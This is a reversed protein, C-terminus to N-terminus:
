YPRAYFLFLNKNNDVIIIDNSDTAGDGTCDTVNYGFAFINNDNDIDTLDSGDVTGDQNADGGYFAYVGSGMNQMPANFGDDYAQSLATSFNYTTVGSAMAVTNLSWTEISNRHKVAIYYSGAVATPFNVSASGDNHLITRESYDPTPNSLSGASWLNVEITDTETPDTSYGLDYLTSWMTGGGLYFGELFATLDLDLGSACPDIDVVVSATAVCGYSNTVTITFTNVSYGYDAAYVDIAPDTSLFIDDWGITAGAGAGSTDATLTVLTTGNVGDWCLTEPGAPTIAPTPPSPNSVVTYTGTQTCGNGDEATVTYTTTSAPSVTIAQTTEGGPSWLYNTYGADATLTVNGVGGCIPTTSSPSVNIAVDPYITVEITESVSCAGSDVTATYTTSATPSVTIMQTTGIVSTGDSWSYTDYGAGADLNVTGSGCFTTPGSPTIVLNIPQYTVTVPDSVQTCGGSTTATVSYTTTATPIATFSVGTAGGPNWTYDVQAGVQIQWDYFYYYSTSSSAPCCRGSTISMVGPVDFPFSGVIAASGDRALSAISGTRALMNLSYGTGAVPVDFNIPVYTKIGPAATGTGSFTYTAIINTAPDRLIIDVTGAGTGIPYIYVGNITFPTVADFLLGAELTYSGGGGENPAGVTYTVLSTDPNSVTLVVSDGALCIVASSPTIVPKVTTDNVTITVPGDVAGCLDNAGGSSDAAYVYYSTTSDPVFVYPNGTYIITSGDTSWYYTYGTNSSSATLTVSTGQCVTTASATFGVPPSANVTVTVPVRGGTNVCAGITAEVWYTTTASLFPEYPNGTFLAGGGSAGLYWGFDGNGTATLTVVGAGCRSTGTAAVTPAAVVVEKVMSTDTGGCSAYLRYYTTSTLTGTTYTFGNAGSIDTWTDILGTPSSQWQISAGTAIGTAELEAIGSHCITDPTSTIVAVGPSSAVTVLVTDSASCGFSSTLTAIYETSVFVAGSNVQATSGSFGAPISSWTVNGSPALNVNVGPNLTGYSSMPGSSSTVAWSTNTNNDDSILVSGNQGSNSPINGSWDSATVGSAAPFTMGNVAVADIILGNKRIIYGGATGSGINFNVTGFRYANNAPDDTPNSSNATLILSGGSPILTAGGPITVEHAPATGGAVWHEFTVGSPDVPGTGLNTVEWIDETTGSPVTIYSPTFGSYGSTIWGQVMLETWRLSPIFSPSNATLTVSSGSCVSLDPGVDVTPIPAVVLTVSSPIANCAGDQSNVTYIYTGEATPTIVVPSGTASGSIGSASTDPSATWTFNYVNGNSGSQILDLTASTGLCITDPTVSAAISDYPTVEAIVMVRESYCLGDTESVYFTDTEYIPYNVLSTGSQGPIVTTTTSDEYWYFTGTGGSVSATPTGYGCQTSNTATPTAPLPNVTVTVTTDDSCAGITATVTYTTTSTPNVTVNNGSLNGPNWVWSLSSTLNTTNVLGGLYLNPRITSSNSFTGAAPNSCHDPTNDIYRKVTASFGPNSYRVTSSSAGADNNEFCYEVILNSTGNWYFPTIPHANVGLVPTVTDITAVQTMGSEFTSATLATTATNKMFIRVNPMAPTTGVSSVDFGVSTINGPLLGAATLESALYLMQTKSSGYLRYYPYTSTTTTATGIQATGAGIGFSEANLDVSAGACITTPSASVNTVEPYENVEIIQNVILACEAGADVASVTYTYTGAATPTATVNAGSTGSLGATGSPVASWTYVYNSTSGTQVADLTIPTTVPLCVSTDSAAIEVLDPLNVTVTVATRPGECYGNYESVYFTTTASIIEATLVSDTEGAIATGGTPVTYWKFTNSPDGSRTVSIAPVGSGCQTLSVPNTPALPEPHVFVTHYAENYCMPPNPDAATVTYTTTVAPTVVVSNGSLSGPNWSWNVTGAGNVVAQGGFIFQPRVSYTLLNTATNSCQVAASTAASTHTKRTSVYATNDMRVTRSMTASSSSNGHCMEIVINSTGDWNFPTSFTMTNIGTVPMLSANSYVTTFSPTLFAASLDTATTHAMSLSFDIMPLTGASTVDLALSTINGAYLGAASLESAPIIYQIHLNSWLSYFGASYTSSTTAGAGVTVNGASVIPTLATLTVNTGPCISDVDATVSSIIPPALVFITDFAEAVCTGDSATVKWILQGPNNPAATTTNQGSATGGAPISTWEYSTYTTVSGQTAALTVTGFPCITDNPVTATATIAEAITINEVVMVRPGECPGTAYVEAVYFTDQQNRPYAILISDNQGAIPSGGLADFYWNFTSGAVSREVYCTPTQNGCHGGDFAIPAPPTPNVIVNVTASNSCSTAPDTATVTYNTTSAPNVTVENGSVAGPNWTWNYTGSAFGNVTGNLYLNPRITSSNSYTGASPNACYNADNDVYRKVTAAFGPNTYRVSSSSNGGDNNAFCYEVLLNSTGNWYFPSVAHMNVGLVPTVTDITAVLTLGTEFTSATMASISTNALSISVNPMEPTTGVSSVDFGISTINGQVMGAATLESALYLMQTKSSGYLRYYPYTSTTSTGTGIQAQGATTDPTLATLVVPSGACVTDPEAAVSTITPVNNVTVYVSDQIVCMNPGDVATVIYNYTGPVTPTVTVPSGVISGSIGSGGSPQATWTYDYTNTSGTQIVSLDFSQGPCVAAFTSQADIPDPDVVTATVMVRDGPCGNTGVEAVYFITTANISTLYTTDLGSQLLTGFTPADYWNYTAGVTGQVSAEPVANGCQTSNQASPAAPVPLVEVLVPSSSVSCGNADTVNATYSLTSTPIITLSPGSGVSSTGDSWDVSAFSSIQNSTFTMVPRVSYSGTRSTAGCITAADVNDARYYNTATYSTADYKVSASTGGGNNNSWCTQMVVNSVGDWNFPAIFNFTLVGPASITVLASTYVTTLGTEFTTGLATAATTGIKLDFDAYSGGASGMEIGLATIDGAYVGAANLEAPTILFENKHGGYLHYFPSQYSTSTSVGSGSVFDGGIFASLVTSDGQCIPGVPSASASVVTGTLYEDQYTTGPVTTSLPVDNYATVTWSVVANAPTAAPITFSYTSGSTPAYLELTDVAIGDFSYIVLVSDIVGIGTTVDATVTHSGATCQSGPTLTLNTVDPTSSIGDFEDAGIDPATGTGAYGISGQRIDGDFDDDVGAIATGGSEIVNATANDIHLFTPSTGVISLISSSVNQSRSGVEAPSVRAKFAALTQDSNTGDYYLLRSGSPTGSYWLNNSSAPDYSSLSTSTRRLGIASAAATAGGPIAFNLVLNNNLKFVPTTSSVYIGIAGFATGSGGGALRITNNYLKVSTGGSIHVGSLADNATMVPTSSTLDISILNNTITVNTGSTNYIGKITSTGSNQGAYLDFIKNKSINVEGGLLSYIGVVNASEGISSYLSDIVNNTVNRFLGSSTTNHYMGRVNIASSTSTGKVYLRRIINNSVTEETPSGANYLGYVTAGSSGSMSEVGNNEITNNTFIYKSTGIYASYLTSTASGGGMYNDKVTNGSSLLTDPASNYMLYMTGTTSMSNGSVMSGTRVENDPGSSYLGYFTGTGNKANGSVTNGIMELNASTGTVYMTYMTGTGNKANNSATNGNFQLQSSVASTPYMGYWSGTGAVINGDLLNNSFSSPDSPSATCYMGYFLASTAGTMSIGSVENNDFSFSLPSSGTVAEIGRFQGTTATNRTINSVTNGVVSLVSNAWTTVSIGTHTGTTVATMTANGVENNDVNVTTGAQPSAGGYTELAIGDFVATTATTVNGSMVNGSVNFKPSYDLSGSSISNFGTVIMRMAHGNDGNMQNGTFTNNSISVSDGVAQAIIGFMTGTANTSSSTNNLFQNGTINLNYATLTDGSSRGAFMLWLDSSGTYTSNQIINNTINVFNNVSNSTPRGLRSGASSRIAICQTTSAASTNITVTNGTVTSNADRADGLRIGNILGTGGNAGTNVTNDAVSLNNQYEAFIGYVAASGGGINTIINGSGGIENNQDYFAFPSADNFGGIVIGNYVNSITNTFFKNDSHTGSAATVTVTAYSADLNPAYIGVTTNLNAKNLTITCNQITDHQAGDTGSCKLLVYGAEAQMASDTNNANEQLDIGDFTLYDVGVIKVIADTIGTGTGATIIPNAGVGAKRFTLTQSANPANAGLACMDLTLNATDSQGAAVEFVVNGGVGFSNLDSFAAAFSLYNNCTAAQTNDITYTGVLPGAGSLIHAASTVSCGNSNTVVVTYSGATTAEYTDQDLGVNTSGDLVWQYSSITGSGATVSATLTEPIGTCISTNGSISATPSAYTTISVPDSTYSCGNSNTVTVTYSGVASAAETDSTGLSTSGDLVWQYGTITGSGATANSSLVTNGEPCFELSGSIAATPSVHFSLTMNSVAALCSGAGDPDDTTLTLVVSGAASDASSPTYSTATAFDTNPSFSGSGSSSWTGSTAAGGISGALTHSGEPCITAAVGADATAPTACAGANFTASITHNAMVNTFTYSTPTGVSVADVLVDDIFRAADPTITFTQNTGCDVSVAGLPSITGDPGTSSTITYQLISIAVPASTATCGLDSTVTVTYSGVASADYTNQDLGVPSGDSWAYSAITGTTNATLTTSGGTCITNTGTINVTPTPNVTVVASGSIDGADVTCLADSASVITYTTTTAPSVSITHPSSAIGSETFNSTGDNYTVSWPADGTLTFILDTSQGDCITATGSIDATPIDVIVSATASITCGGAGTATATYTTTVSPSAIVDLGTYVDLGSAAPTWAIPYQVNESTYYEFTATAPFTADPGSTNDNYSESYYIDVTGGAPDFLAAFTATDGSNSNGIAWDMPNPSSTSTAGQFCPSSGSIGSGSFALRIESGYSGGNLSVGTITLHAGVMTGSFAPVTFSGILNNGPCIYGSTGSSGNDEDTSPNSLSVSISNYNVQTVNAGSATLAQSGGACITSTMPSISVSPPPPNVTVVKTAVAACGANPGASNDLADVTYTTTVSPSVTVSATTGASHSWTYDYNPDNTSSATLITSEGFCITSTGAISVAPASTVSATVATRASVCVGTGSFTMKPRLSSTSTATTAACLSAASENDARYYAHSVFTTADRKVSSSTGGGNVNSWCVEILLNSTGDWNVPSSFPYVNFGVTPSVSASSYVSTLGTELTSTMVSSTTLKASIGFDSLSVGASVVEFAVSTIDGAIFGAASLESALILYQSKKGGYLHYYPSEYSSSTAAGIGVTLESGPVPNSAAVYFDTNSSIVPTAFPSGTGLLNGGLSADYWTMDSGASATAELSVSGTGCRSGATTGTITPTFVEVTASTTTVGGCADSVTVTYSSTSTIVGTVISTTTEGGPSWSYTYPATGDTATVSVSAAGTNCLSAPTASATAALASATITYNDITGGIPFASGTLAVSSPAAAFTGSSNGVNPTAVLDQAVIFYEIIDGATIGGFILVPDIVLSFPTSGSATEAYKWGDTTNDNTGGLANANTSKRFYVRPNTGGSTNVGSVDNIDASITRSTTCNGDTLAAFSISPATIDALIGTFEDAGIDPTSVNRTDGDYDDTIGSVTLGGSEVQTAVGTNIHLFDVSSGTTSTFSPNETVAAQDRTSMYAKYGALSSQDNTYTSTGEVYLLNAAGPTGAYLLNNDSSSSYSTLTSSSRRFAATNGTGNPTSTNVILNSRLTLTPTTSAYIGASGFTAGSSSANIYISNFDANVTTGGGVYIGTLNNTASVAPASLNGIINNRADITTGSSIYIGHVNSSAGDASLGYIKNKSILVTSGLSQYIGRVTAAGSSSNTFTLTHILNGSLDKVSSSSTSLYIGQLNSSTSSSATTITNNTITNNTLTEMTPSSGDYLGYLSTALTGGGGSFSNGSITNGDATWLSTSARIGYMTGGNNNITNNSITNSNTNLTPVSASSYIGYFTCSSNTAATGHSNGSVTNANMNVTAATATNYIAYFTASTATAYASNQVTNNNINVTNSAATSGTANEIGSVQSTTGGGNVTIVNNTIDINASTGSQAYIGRLTTAHNVGGGDNNNITNYSINANWQNVTRIAAAPNTTGGGGYNTIINGQGSSSGGIDNGTDGATFPSSAAYGYLVIGANGGNITNTYFKNYSNTGGFATPTLATTAASSTSNVTRIAVSGEVMTGSGSANHLRQMNFVCNRITNYQAGDSLNLKFLAIGFEMAETANTANGDTFTIGDITVYDSGEIRFMGDPTANNPSSATGVAANITVTGSNVLTLTNTVSLAPNLTASGLSFGKIPATESGSLTLTVPGSMATVANVAALASALDTYSAALNPSTNTPVDVTVAIQANLDTAFLSIIAIGAFLMWRKFSTTATNPYNDQKM